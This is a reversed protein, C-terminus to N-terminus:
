LLSSIRLNIESLAQEKIPIAGGAAAPSLTQGHIQLELALDRQDGTGGAADALRSDPAQSAFARRHDDMAPAGRFGLADDGVDGRGAPRRLGRQAVQRVIRAGFLRGAAASAAKPGTSMRTLLAATNRVSSQFLRSAASQISWYSLFTPEITRITFYM